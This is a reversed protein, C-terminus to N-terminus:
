SVAINACLGSSCKGNSILLDPTRAQFIRECDRWGYKPGVHRIVDLRASIKELVETVVEGIRSLL